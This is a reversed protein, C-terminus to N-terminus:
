LLNILVHIIYNIPHKEFATMTTEHARLIMRYCSCPGTPMSALPLEDWKAILPPPSPILVVYGMWGSGYIYIERM